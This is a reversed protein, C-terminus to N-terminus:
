RARVVYGDHPSPGSGVGCPVRFRRKLSPNLGRSVLVPLGILPLAPSPHSFLTTENTSFAPSEDGSCNVMLVECLCRSATRVFLAATVRPVSAGLSGMWDRITPM